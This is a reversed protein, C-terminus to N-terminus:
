CLSSSHTAPDPHQVENDSDSFPANWGLLASSSIFEPWWGSWDWLKVPLMWATHRLCLIFCFLHFELKPSSPFAQSRPDPSPILAAPPILSPKPPIAMQGHPFSLYPKNLKIISSINLLERPMQISQPKINLCSILGDELCRQDQFSATWVGSEDSWVWAFLIQAVSM